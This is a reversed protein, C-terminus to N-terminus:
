VFIGARYSRVMWQQCRRTPLSLPRFALLGLGGLGGLIGTLFLEQQVCLGQNTLLCLSTM